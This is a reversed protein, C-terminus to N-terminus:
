QDVAPTRRPVSPVTTTLAPHRPRRPLPDDAHPEGLFPRLPVSPHSHHPDLSSLGDGQAGIFYYSPSPPGGEIGVSQPFTYLLKITFFGASSGWRKTEEKGRAGSGHSCASSSTPGRGHGHSSSSSVSGHGHSSSPNSSSSFVPCAPSHSAAFVDTQYFTGDTALSRPRLRPLRRRPNWRLTGAAASPGSWMGVDKGAAKGALAMGHVGARRPVVLPPARTPRARRTNLASLARAPYANAPTIASSTGDALSSREPLAFNSSSRRALTTFELNPSM